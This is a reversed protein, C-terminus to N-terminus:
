LELLPPPVGSTIKISFTLAMSLFISALLFPLFLYRSSSIVFFVLMFPSESVQLRSSSHFKGLQHRTEPPPCVALHRLHHRVHHSGDVLKHHVHGGFMAARRSSVVVPSSLLFLLILLVEVM